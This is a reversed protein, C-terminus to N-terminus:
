PCERKPLQSRIVRRFRDDDNAGEAQAAYEALPDLARARVDDWTEALMESYEGQLGRNALIAAAIGLRSARIEKRWGKADASTAAKRHEILLMHQLAPACHGVWKDRQARGVSEIEEIVNECDISEM